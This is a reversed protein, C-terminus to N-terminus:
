QTYRNANRIKSASSLLGTGANLFSALLNGQGQMKLSQAQAGYNMAQTKFDYAKLEADQRVNLADLRGLERAAKRTLIQSKGSLSLGSASQAAEQEGLMGLTQTDQSQQDVQGKDIARVANQNAIVQNAKAVAAQYNAQQMASIGSVLSGAASLVAALVPAFSM